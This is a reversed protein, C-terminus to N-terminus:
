SEYQQEPAPIGRTAVVQLYPIVEGNVEDRDSRETYTGEVEIWEDGGLEPPVPGDLGVKIPRADAACCTVVLRALYPEAGPRVIVFGSVLVRRGALSRGSDFVARSAYEMLSLRVPDGDPLPVFDSGAASSLATGNRDAQFAGLAPPAFLLLTLTPVLLLWGVRPEEHDHGGAHDHGGTHNHGGAHDHGAARPRVAPATWAARVAPWLTALGVTVLAAGAVLLLPLLGPKVYRVYTGLLGIKLLTGGVLLLLVGQADRKV